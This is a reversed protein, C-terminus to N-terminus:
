ATPPPLVTLLLEQMWGYIAIQYLALDRLSALQPQIGGSLEEDSFDHRAALVLRAQNLGSLWADIHAFPIRLSYPFDEEENGMTLNETLDTELLSIADEFQTALEPVVLEEWDRALEDNEASPSSFIRARAAANDESNAARLIQRIVEALFPDIGSFEAAKGEYNFFKM